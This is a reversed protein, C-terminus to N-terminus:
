AKQQQKCLADKFEALSITSSEDKDCDKMILLAVKEADEIEADKLLNLLESCNIQNDEGSYKAFCAEIKEDSM